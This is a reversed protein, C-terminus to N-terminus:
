SLSVMMWLIEDDAYNYDDGEEGLEEDKMELMSEVQMEEAAHGQALCFSSSSALHTAQAADISIQTLANYPTSAEASTEILNPLSSNDFPPYRCFLLL